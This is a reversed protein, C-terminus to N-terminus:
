NLSFQNKCNCCCCCCTVVVVVIFNFASMAFQTKCKSTLTPQKDHSVINNKQLNGIGIGNKYCIYMSFIVQPIHVSIGLFALTTVSLSMEGFNAIEHFNDKCLIEMWFKSYEPWQFNQHSSVQCSYTLKDQNIAVRWFASKVFM